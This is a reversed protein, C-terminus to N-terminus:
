RMAGGNMAAERRKKAAKKRAKPNPRKKTEDFEGKFDRPIDKPCQAFRLKSSHKPKFVGSPGFTQILWQPPLWKGTHCYWFSPFPATKDKGKALAKSGDASTVWEPPVYSYRTEPVLFFLNVATNKSRLARSYYDKTYVFHPLLFLFPKNQNQAAFTLLKEMHVGSYPPNTILVDYEPTAKKAIDDYFDRNHNIVNRFGLSELKKQVGGNCYYPDYISLTSRNKGLSKALRDLLELLDRYAQLPTECHDTDDVEFEYQPRDCTDDNQPDQKTEVKVPETPRRTVAEHALKKKRKSLTGATASSASGEEPFTRKRSLTKDGFHQKSNKEATHKNPVETENRKPSPAESTSSQLASESEEATDPQQHRKEGKRKKKKHENKHSTEHQRESPPSM